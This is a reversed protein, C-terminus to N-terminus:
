FLKETFFRVTIRKIDCILKPYKREIQDSEYLVVIGAIPGFFPTYVLLTNLFDTVIFGTVYPESELDKNSKDIKFYDKIIFIVMLIFSLIFHILFLTYM